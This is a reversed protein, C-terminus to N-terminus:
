RGTRAYLTTPSRPYPLSRPYKRRQHLVRAISVKAGRVRHILTFGTRRVAIERTGPMRGPTGIFPYDLLRGASAVLRAAVTDAAALSDAAIYAWADFLDREAEGVM